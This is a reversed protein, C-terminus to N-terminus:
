KQSMIMKVLTVVDAADVKKDHNLDAGALEKRDGMVVSVLVAVDAEDVEWDDNLDGEPHEDSGVAKATFYGPNATGGDIHAYTYDTHSANYHTGAGGVLTPNDYFM